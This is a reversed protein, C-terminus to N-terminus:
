LIHFSCVQVQQRYRASSSDELKTFGSAFSAEFTCQFTKNKIYFLRQQDCLEHKVLDALVLILQPTIKNQKTKKRSFVVQM